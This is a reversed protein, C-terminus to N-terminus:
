QKLKILFDGCRDCQFDAEKVSKALEKKDHNCPQMENLTVNAISSIEENLIMRLTNRFVSHRNTSQQLCDTWYNGRHETVRAIKKLFDEVKM